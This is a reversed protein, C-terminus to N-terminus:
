ESAHEYGKFRRELYRVQAACRKAKTCTLTIYVIDDDSDNIHRGNRSVQNAYVTDIETKIDM